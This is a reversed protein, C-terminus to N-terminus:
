SKSIGYLTATSYQAFSNSSPTLTIQNIVSTDSWLGADLTTYATTANNEGVADVSVSKFTSGSYNPIYFANSAFTSATTNSVNIEGLIGATYTASSAAAGNGQVYRNSYNSSSGNFKMNISGGSTSTNRASVLVMLDTYTSVISSFDMSAAGGSGVTVSAIKVYTNAM